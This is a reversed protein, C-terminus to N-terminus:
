FTHLVYEDWYANLQARKLPSLAPDDLLEGRLRQAESDRGAKATERALELLARQRVRLNGFPDFYSDVRGHDKVGTFHFDTQPATEEVINRFEAAALESTIKKSLVNFRTRLLHMEASASRSDLLGVVRGVWDWNVPGRKAQVGLLNFTAIAFLDPGEVAKAIEGATPQGFSSPQMLEIASDSALIREIDDKHMSGVVVVITEGHMKASERIRMAQMFTRYLFLRRPYDYAKQAPTVDSFERNEKRDSESEAFFLSTQLDHADTFATFGQFGTPNREFPPRELDSLGFALMTDEAAPLWDIACLPIRRERAYPIALYQQEFTFEYFDGRALEQPTREVCIASPKVRNFFARFVAPQYNEAVLQASHNVGLIMVRTKKEPSGDRNRPVSWAASALTCCVVSLLLQNVKVSM